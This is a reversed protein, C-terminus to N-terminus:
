MGSNYTRQKISDLLVHTFKANILNYILNVQANTDYLLNTFDPNGIIELLLETMAPNLAKTSVHLANYRCGEQLFLVM